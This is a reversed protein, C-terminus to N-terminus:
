FDASIKSEQIPHFCSKDRPLDHVYELLSSAVVLKKTIVKKNSRDVAKLM